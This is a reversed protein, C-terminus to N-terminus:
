EHIEGSICRVLHIDKPMLTTRKGHIVCLMAHDYLNVLYIEMTEQISLIAGSQFRLDTKFYQAIERILHQFPLKPVLLKTSKQYKQIEWLAHLSQKNRNLKHLEKAREIEAKTKKRAQKGARTLMRRPKPTRASKGAETTRYNRAERQRREAEKQAITKTTKMEPM